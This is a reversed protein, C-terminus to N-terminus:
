IRHATMADILRRHIRIMDNIDDKTLVSCLGRMVARRREELGALAAEGEPTVSVLTARRDAPDPSREVVGLEVLSDVLSTAAPAKIGMRAALESVRLPGSEHLLHLLLARPGVLRMDNAEDGGGFRASFLRGLQHITADFEDLLEDDIGSAAEEPTCPSPSAPRQVAPETVSPDRTVM